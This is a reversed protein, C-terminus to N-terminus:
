FRGYGTGALVRLADSHESGDGPGDVADLVQQWLPLSQVHLDDDCLAVACLIRAYAILYAHEPALEDFMGAEEILAVLSTAAAEHDGHAAAYGTELFLARRTYRCIMHAIKPDPSALAVYVQLCDRIRKVAETVGAYATRILYIEGLQALVELALDDRDAEEVRPLLSLLLAKAAEEDAAFALHRAKELDDEITVADDYSAASTRPVGAARDPM